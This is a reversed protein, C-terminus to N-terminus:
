NPEADSEEDSKVEFEADIADDDKVDEASEDSGADSQSAQYLVQSLAQSTQELESVASNIVDKDEGKASEKVKDISTKVPALDDESLKEANEEILKEMQYVLQDAKNRAEVLEFQKKDEEAHDEADQRMREIESDDLGASDEIRVSAEKQTGLDKASVNLIGNQDIDFKVEIQPVGRPAPPIGELNFEGLVKNNAAMKREGQFVKVTVAPQNDAATSFVQTKEVPITTNREVIPTLVGGETEIGLTLPTVDLLLVDTRDGALVSGQIAAGLAVVEDPNVGQHPAKGFISQVMERVKPVRTSGGVLVVEDIDSPSFGADSLAQEVPKRCRTVLDDILEEFKAKTITVQLHKPGNADATIFPLNLDTSPVSSLEKKAKECAEQLRQLAMTDKRLDVGNEAKFQDAVYNILAEDFDDGGLQTDGSTSVVQFVRSQGDDSDTDAVELVSVDFTGGGLDFVVIREDSKKDLGYALAAATPENIIRAVELGAIQGADKTAQRQADNFYAPVTIVAKNVKHGLYSEAAEKLKRLTKASVEQPTYDQGDIRIQTYGNEGKSVEYPVMKDADTTEAFRRGMFRKVSYVTRQPNTVAQRRAPEGVHTEGGDSYAVVSPTLRSGEPNPIVKSDSGEVVAVVSNTTGLDIGIIKEGEAM